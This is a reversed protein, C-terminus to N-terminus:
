PPRSTCPSCCARASPTRSRSPSSSRAAAEVSMFSGDLVEGAQLALKEKLVKVTGDTDVFEIRVTAAQEVTVSKESGYFDGSSMHAVHTKRTPRGPAWRTRTSRAYQKVSPPARRDSNGERLVPNVASGLVKAYRAQIAKEAEDKPEEPYDPVTTARRRCSRSRRGEAAPDLRQHQAAQHHQGRADPDTRGPLGPRRSDAAARDLDDPFNALIRGALSIDRTEVVM